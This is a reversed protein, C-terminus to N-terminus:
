CDGPLDSLRQEPRIEQAPVGTQAALIAALDAWVTRPTPEGGTPGEGHQVALRVVLHRVRPVRVRELYELWGTVWLIGFWEGVLLVLGFWVALGYRISFDEGTLLVGVPYLVWWAATVAAFCIRFVRTSPRRRRPLDPLEALGLAAALRPWTASRVPFSFLHRLQTAPKVQAREVGFEATLTRRIRYFAQSTPCPTETRRRTRRLLYLYLDGVTDLWNCEEPFTFGFREEIAMIVSVMDM